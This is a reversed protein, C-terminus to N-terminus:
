FRDNTPEILENFEELHSYKRFYGKVEERDLGEQKLLHILDDRDLAKREPNSAMSYLKLAVLHEPKVVRVRYHGLVPFERVRAFLTDATDGNIYL